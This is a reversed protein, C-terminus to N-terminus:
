PLSPRCHVTRRRPDYAISGSDALKPLVAHHLRRRIWETPVDDALRGAAFRAVDDLSATEDTTTELYAAVCEPLGPEPAANAGDAVRGAVDVGDAAGSDVVRSDPDYDVLGAADLEPLRTHHLDVAVGRATAAEGGERDAVAAALEDLDVPGTRESLVDLVLRRREAGLVVRERPVTSVHRTPTEDTNPSMDTQEQGSQRGSVVSLM